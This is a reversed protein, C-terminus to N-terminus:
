FQPWEIQPRKVVLIVASVEPDRGAIREVANAWPLQRPPKGARLDRLAEEVSDAEIVVAVQPPASAEAAELMRRTVDEAARLAEAWAAEAGDQPELEPGELITLRSERPEWDHGDFGFPLGAVWPELIQRRLEGESVNLVRAQELASSIEIHFPM